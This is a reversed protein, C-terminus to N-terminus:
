AVPAAWRREIMPAARTMLATFEERALPLLDAAAGPVSLDLPICYTKIGHRDGLEKALTELKDQSRATLILDLKKAALAKAFEAGIGMSAGTILATAM